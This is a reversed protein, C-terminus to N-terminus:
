PPRSQTGIIRRLLFGVWYWQACSLLMTLILRLGFQNSRLLEVDMPILQATAHAVFLSPMQLWLAFRLPAPLDDLGDRLARGFVATYKPHSHYIDYPLQETSLGQVAQESSVFFVIWFLGWFLLNGVLFFLPLRSRFARTMTNPKKAERPTQEGSRM